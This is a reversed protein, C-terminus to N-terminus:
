CKSWLKGWLRVKGDSFSCFVWCSMIKFGWNIHESNWTWLKPPYIIVFYHLIDHTISSSSPRHPNCLPKCGGILGCLRCAISSKRECICAAASKLKSNDFSYYLVHAETLSKIGASSWYITFSCIFCLTEWDLDGDGRQQVRSSHSWGGDSRPSFLFSFSAFPIVWCCSTLFGKNHPYHIGTSCFSFFKWVWCLKSGPCLKCHKPLSIIFAVPMGKGTFFPM